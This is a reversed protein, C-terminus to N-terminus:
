RSRRHSLRRKPRRRRLWSLRVGARKAYTRASQMSIAIAVPLPKKERKRLMAINKSITARSYGGYLPM